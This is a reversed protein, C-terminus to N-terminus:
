FSYTATVRSLFHHSNGSIINGWKFLFDEAIVADIKLKEEINLGLGGGVHDNITMDAEPNSQLMSLDLQNTSTGWIVKRFGVRLVLWDWVVNREIGFSLPVTLSVVNKTGSGEPITTKNRILETGAWFFGRDLTVNAGLGGEIELVEYKRVAIKKVKVVPVIEGNLSLLTSFLRANAFYSIDRENYDEIVYDSGMQPLTPGDYYLLAVGGAVELDMNQTLPMNIGLDGRVVNSRWEADKQSTISNFIATDASYATTDDEWRDAKVIGAEKLETMSSTLAEFPVAISQRAVYLHGGLMIGNRLTYGLFFDSNPVVPTPIIHDNAAAANLLVDVLENEHNMMAGVCIMPYRTEAERDRNLSFSLIGGGFPEKPDQNRYLTSSDSFETIHGPEGVLFNPYININSPNEYISVDDMFFTATKGMSEVRANTGFAVSILLFVVATVTFFKKM